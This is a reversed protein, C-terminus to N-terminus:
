SWIFDSLGERIVVVVATIGQGVVPIMFVIFAALVPRLAETWTSIGFVLSLVAILLFLGALLNFVVSSLGVMLTFLWQIVTVILMVPFALVKGMFKLLHM